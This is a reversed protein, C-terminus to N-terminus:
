IYIPQYESLPSLGIKLVEKCNIAKRYRPVRKIIKFQLAAKFRAEASDFAAALCAAPVVLLLIFLKRNM